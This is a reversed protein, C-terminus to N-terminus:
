FHPILNSWPIVAYVGVPVRRLSLFAEVVIFVRSFVYITVNLVLLVWGYVGSSDIWGDDDRTIAFWLLSVVGTMGILDLCSVKWLVAEVKTPFKFSWAALHVGGYILMLIVMILLFYLNNATGQIDELILNRSRVCFTGALRSRQIGHFDNTNAGFALDLRRVDKETLMIELAVPTRPNREPEPYNARVYERNTGNRQQYLYTLGIEGQSDKKFPMRRYGGVMRIVRTGPPTGIAISTPHFLLTPHPNEPSYVTWLDLETPFLSDHFKVLGNKDEIPRTSSLPMSAILAQAVLNEFQSIDAITPDRVDQPKLVKALSDANSKDKISIGSIGIFHGKEALYRVGATTLTLYKYEDHMNSVDLVFGGMTAYFCYTMDFKGNELKSRSLHSMRNLPNLLRRASWWQQLATYLVVEPAFIGILVWKTKRFTQKWASERPTPINLHIATYVCLSLTLACSYLLDGTGRTSSSPYWEGTVETDLATTNSLPIPFSTSPLPSGLSTPFLYVLSTLVLM